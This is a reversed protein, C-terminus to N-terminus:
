RIEVNETKQNLKIPKFDQYCTYIRTMIKEKKVPKRTQCPFSKM